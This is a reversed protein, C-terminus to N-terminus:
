MEIEIISNVNIRSCLGGRRPPSSFGHVFLSLNLYNSHEYRHTVRPPTTCLTCGAQNKRVLRPGAVAHGVTLVGISSGTRMRPRDRGGCDVTQHRRHVRQMCLLSQTVWWTRMVGVCASVASHSRVGSKDQSRLSDVRVRVCTSQELCRLRHSGVHDAPRPTHSKRDQQAGDKFVRGAM